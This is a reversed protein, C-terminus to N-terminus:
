LPEHRRAIRYVARPGPRYHAALGVGLGMAAFFILAVPLAYLGDSVLFLLGCGCLGALTARLDDRARPDDTNMPDTANM